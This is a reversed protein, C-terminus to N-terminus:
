QKERAAISQAAGMFEDFKQLVTRVLPEKLVDHLSRTGRTVYGRFGKCFDLDAPYNYFIGNRFECNMVDVIKTESYRRMRPEACMLGYYTEDRHTFWICFTGGHSEILQYQDVVVTEGLIESIAVGIEDRLVQERRLYEERVAMKLNRFEKNTLGEM